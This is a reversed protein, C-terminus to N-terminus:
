VERQGKDTEETEAYVTKTGKQYQEQLQDMQNGYDDQRQSGGDENAEAVLRRAEEETYGEFNVLYKWKPLVNARVLDLNRRRDEEFNATIDKFYYHVSYEEDPSLGYLSSYYTICELLRDISHRLARRYTSITNITRRQDAEVETATLLGSKENFMFHGESFGCKNGIFSLLLNIQDRHKDVQIVPNYEHITNEATVGFDLGKVFKPLVTRQKGTNANEIAFKSMFIMKGSTRTEDAFITYAIDIDELQDICGSYCSMPIKSDLSINNTIPVGFVSYLPHKLGKLNVEGQIGRWEDIVDLPVEQMAASKDIAMFAKNKIIYNNEDIYNHYEARVYIDKGKEVKDIFIVEVLEKKAYRIPIIEFPNLVDVGNDSPKFVIYGVGCALEINDRLVEKLGNIQGQLYDAHKSGTIQVDIDLTVLRAIEECVTKAIDLTRLESNSDAGFLDDTANRGSNALWYANGFYIDAWEKVMQKDLENMAPEVEFARYLKDSEFCYRGGLYNFINSIIGM